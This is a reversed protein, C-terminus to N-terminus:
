RKPWKRRMSWVQLATFGEDRYELAYRERYRGSAIGEELVTLKRHLLPHHKLFYLMNSQYIQMAKSEIENM